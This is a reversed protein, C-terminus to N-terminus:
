TSRNTVHNYRVVVVAVPYTRSSLKLSLHRRHCHLSQLSLSLTVHDTPCCSSPGSTYARNFLASLLLSLTVIYRPPCYRYGHFPCPAFFAIIKISFTQWFRLRRCCRSNSPVCSPGCCSSLLRSYSHAFFLPHVLISSSFLRRATAHIGLILLRFQVVVAMLLTISLRPVSSAYLHDKTTRGDNSDHIM